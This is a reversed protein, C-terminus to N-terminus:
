GQDLNNSGFPPQLFLNIEGTKKEFLRFVCVEEVAKQGLHGPYRAIQIMIVGSVVM